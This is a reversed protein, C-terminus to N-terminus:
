NVTAFHRQPDPVVSKCHEGSTWKERWLSADSGRVLHRLTVPAGGVVHPDVPAQDPLRKTNGGPVLRSPQYSLNLCCIVSAALSHPLQKSQQLSGYTASNFLGISV